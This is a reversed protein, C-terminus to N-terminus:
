FRIAVFGYVSHRNAISGFTWRRTSYTAVIGPEMRGGEWGISPGVAWHPDQRRPEPNPYDMGGTVIAGPTDAIARPGEPTDVLSLRVTLPELNQPQIQVTVVRRLTADPPLETRVEAPAPEPTRELVLAGSDLRVAAAPTIIPATTQKTLRGLWFGLACALIIVLAATRTM